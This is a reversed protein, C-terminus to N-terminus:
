IPFDECDVLRASLHTSPFQVSDIGAAVQNYIQLM